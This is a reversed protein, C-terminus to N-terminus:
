PVRSRADNCSVLVDRLEDVDDNSWGRRDCEALAAVAAARLSGYLVRAPTFFDGVVLPDSDAHHEVCRVRLLTNGADAVALMFPGDAFHCMSESVEGSALVALGTLWAALIRIPFDTWGTYPFDAHAGDRASRRLWIPGTVANPGSRDFSRPTVIFEAHEPAM